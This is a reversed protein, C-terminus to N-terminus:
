GSASSSNQSGRKIIIRVISEDAMAVCIEPDNVLTDIFNGGNEYFFDLMGEATEQSCEGM